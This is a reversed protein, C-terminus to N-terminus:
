KKFFQLPNQLYFPIAKMTKAAYLISKKNKERVEGEKGVIVWDLDVVTYFANSKYFNYNKSSIEIIRGNEDNSKQAFYRIIYGNNYDSEKLVPIHATPPPVLYDEELKSITNYRDINM